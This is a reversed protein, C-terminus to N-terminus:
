KSFLRVTGNFDAAAIVYKAQKDILSPIPAFTAATIIGPSTTRPTSSSASAGQTTTTV